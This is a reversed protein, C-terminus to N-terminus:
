PSVSKLRLRGPCVHFVHIMWKVLERESQIINWVEANHCGFTTTGGWKCFLFHLFSLAEECAVHLLLSSRVEADTETYGLAELYLTFRQPFEGWNESIADSELWTLSANWGSKVFSAEPVLWQRKLVSHASHKIWKASYWLIMVVKITTNTLVVWM